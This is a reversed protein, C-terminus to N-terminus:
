KWSHEWNEGRRKRDLTIFQLILDPLGPATLPFFAYGLIMCPGRGDVRNKRVAVDKM